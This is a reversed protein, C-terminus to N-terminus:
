DWKSSMRGGENEEAEMQQQNWVQRDLEEQGIVGEEGGM